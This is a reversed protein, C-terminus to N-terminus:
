AWNLLRRNSLYVVPDPNIVTWSILTFQKVPVTLPLAHSWYILAYNQNKDLGRIRYRRDSLTIVLEEADGLTKIEAEVLSAPKAPVPTAVISEEKVAENETKAALSPIANDEPEPKDVDTRIEPSLPKTTKKNKTAIKTQQSEPAAAGERDALENGSDAIESTTIARAKGKGTWVASRIAVGLSKSAPQVQLAYSNADINKPFQIRYCDIGSEILKEPLKEAANNGAEDRDYAILVREINYQKFAQVHDATFGEIGYSATVNRFGSCWFTLADILSECLIVENTAKLAVENWVGSHAGPLYLHTPTGKRLNDNIKRGYVELVQGTENIVPMVISGNFHEHGSARM